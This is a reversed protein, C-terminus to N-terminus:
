PTAGEPPTAPVGGLRDPPMDLELAAVELAQTWSLRRKIKFPERRDREVFELADRADPHIPGIGRRPSGCEVLAIAEGFTDCRAHLIGEHSYHIAIPKV